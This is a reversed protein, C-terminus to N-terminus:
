LNTVAMTNLNISQAIGNNGPYCHPEEGGALGGKASITGKNTFSTKYFIQVIGGGGGSGYIGTGNLGDAVISKTSNNIFIDCHIIIIGGGNGGTSAPSHYGVGGSGGLVNFNNLLGPIIGAGIGNLGGRGGGFCPDSSSTGTGITGFGSATIIGNNTFTGKVKFICNGTITHNNTFNDFYLIPYIGKLGGNMNQTTNYNGFYNLKGTNLLLINDNEGLQNFDAALVPTKYAWNSSMDQYAM